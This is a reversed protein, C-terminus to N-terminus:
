RRATPGPRAESEANEFAPDFSAEGSARSSRRFSPNTGGTVELVKVTHRRQADEIESEVAEPPLNVFRSSLNLLMTEFVIREEFAAGGGCKGLWPAIRECSTPLPGPCVLPDPVEAPGEILM